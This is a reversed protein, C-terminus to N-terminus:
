FRAIERDLESAAFRALREYYEPDGAIREAIGPLSFPGRVLEFSVADAMGVAEAISAGEGAARGFGVAGGAAEMVSQGALTGAIGQAARYVPSALDGAVGKAADQIANGM